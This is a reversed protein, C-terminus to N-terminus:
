ITGTVTMKMTVTMVERRSNEDFAVRGGTGFTVNGAAEM